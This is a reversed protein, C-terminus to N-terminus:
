NGEQTTTQYLIDAYTGDVPKTTLHTGLCYPCRYVSFVKGYKRSLKDASKKYNKSGLNAKGICGREKSPLLTM